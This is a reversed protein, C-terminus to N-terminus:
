IKSSAIENRIAKPFANFFIQIEETDTIGLYNRIGNIIEFPTMDPNLRKVGKYMKKLATKLTNCVYQRTTGLEQAIEEGNLPEIHNFYVNM